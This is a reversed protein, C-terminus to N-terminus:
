KSERKKRQQKKAKLLKDSTHIYHLLSKDKGFSWM